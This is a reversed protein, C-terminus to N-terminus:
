AGLIRIKPIMVNRDLYMVAYRLADMGDDQEKVPEEKAPQGNAGSAWVYGPVEEATSAPRRADVLEPDRDLVADRLIFLRPRGDGAPRLRSQVAQIGDKVAKRAAVTGLGTHRVFTSRGEADHDCIVAQPRPETWVGDKTVAKIIRKAHDEVLTQTRFIERYLYMRGDPDVAWCQLVFPHTFGFDVSWIRRWEPPIPFSDVLHVADSWDEYIVGDAAAWQGKRLRAHRVGTLADLKALYAAGRETVVGDDTFLVPNEEHTTNYMRIKGTDARMKLWHTPQAPNCDAIVQQYPVVWSRMRTTIAEWDDPTLETAEQVYVVDYETSMIRSPRDMGGINIVSGNPYRYQPPDQPGGGHFRVAGTALLEPIVLKRFTALASSPLSAFTKRTILGRMGPYKLAVANLKELCGLSKGTGAPGALLVEPSRDRMLQLVSGRGTYEHVLPSITM